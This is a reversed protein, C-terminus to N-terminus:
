FQQKSRIRHHNACLVQCKAAEELARVLSYSRLANVTTVKLSPDLHDFDLAEAAERFGCISGDGHVWECGRALKIENIFVRHAQRLRASKKRLREREDAPTTNVADWQRWRERPTSQTLAMHWM